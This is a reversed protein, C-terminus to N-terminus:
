HALSKAGRGSASRVNRRVMKAAAVRRDSCHRRVATASVMGSVAGSLTGSMPTKLLSRSSVQQIPLHPFLKPFPNQHITAASSSPRFQSTPYSSPRFNLCVGSTTSSSSQENLFPILNGLVADIETCANAKSCWCLRSSCGGSLYYHYYHIVM